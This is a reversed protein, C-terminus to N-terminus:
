IWYKCKRIAEKECRIQKNKLCLMNNPNYIGKEEELTLGYRVKKNDYQIFIYMKQISAKM